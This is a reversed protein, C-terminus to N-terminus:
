LLSKWEDNFDDHWNQLVTYFESGSLHLDRLSSPDYLSDRTGVFAILRVQNQNEIQLVYSGDDFAEDGDPAWVLHNSYIAGRFQEVTMGLFLESEEREKYIARRFASAVSGADAEMVVPLSHNGRRAIRRGVENFSAGLMTANPERVGYSRGMIDIVFFGLAMQSSRESVQTIESEIALRLPNGIMM